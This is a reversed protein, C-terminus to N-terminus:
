NYLSFLAAPPWIVIAFPLFARPPLIPDLPPPGGPYISLICMNEQNRGVQRGLIPTTPGGPASYRPSLNRNIQRRCTEISWNKIAHFCQLMIYTYHFYIFFMNKKKNPHSYLRRGDNPVPGDPFGLGQVPTWRSRPVDSFRPM